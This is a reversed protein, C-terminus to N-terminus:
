KILLKYTLRGDLHTLVTNFRQSDKTKRTNYRYEFEDVYKDIHQKSVHHYIGYVGRKLMSWFGEITNTHAIGNVYEKQGHNVIQHDKFEKDLGHYAGFEDSSIVANPDVNERIIPKLTKGDAHEVSNARIEGGREAMGFVATKNPQSYGVGQGHTKGGVYTEDVEVIGNLPKSFDKTRMAHRIRHLM